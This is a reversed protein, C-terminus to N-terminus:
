VPVLSQVGDSLPAAEDLGENVALGLVTKDEPAEADAICVPLASLNPFGRVGGLGLSLKDSLPHNRSNFLVDFFTVNFLKNSFKNIIINTFLYFLLGLFNV